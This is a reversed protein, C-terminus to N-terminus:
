EEKSDSKSTDAEPKPGFEGETLKRVKTPEPKPPPSSKKENEDSMGLRELNLNTIEVKHVKNTNYTKVYFPISSFFLFLLTITLMRSTMLLFNNKIDNSKINLDVCEKYNNKFLNYIDDEIQKEVTARELGGFYPDTYYEKITNIDNEIDSASPLYFYDYRYVSCKVLYGTILVSIM